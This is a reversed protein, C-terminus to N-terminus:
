PSCPHPQVAYISVPRNIVKSELNAIQAYCLDSMGEIFPPRYSRSIVYFTEDPAVEDRIHERLSARPADIELCTVPHDSYFYILHCPYWVAYIHQPAPDLHNLVDAADRIPQDAHLYGSQNETWNTHSFPLDYTDRWDTRVFPISFSLVWVSIGVGLGGRVLWRSVDLDWVSIAWAILALLGAIWLPTSPTLQEMVLALILIIVTAGGAFDRAQQWKLGHFILAALSLLSAVIVLEGYREADLWLLSFAIGGGVWILDRARPLQWLGTILAAVLIVGPAATPMFYRATVLRAGWALLGLFAMFWALMFLSPRLWRADTVGRLLHYIVATILVILMTKSTFELVLPLAEEIYEDPSIPEEANARFNYDNILIFPDGSKEAFYAPIVLPTWLLAAVGGAVILPPAYAQVWTWGQRLWNDRRWPYFIFAAAIPLAPMTGMSLKAMTAGALLIGLLVGQRWQPKKAFILSRWAIVCAWGSAFPDAMAMREYFFALPLFAYLGLAAAGTWHGYLRRGVAYIAAGSILAWLAMGSRTTQLIVEHDSEFIGLWFYVLMKGHSFRGPNTDFDWAVTGRKIHFGEDLYPDQQSLNHARIVFQALLLLVVLALQQQRRM